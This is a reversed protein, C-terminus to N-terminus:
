VKSNMTSSSSISSNYYDYPKGVNIDDIKEDLKKRDRLYLAWLIVCDILLFAFSFWSMTSAKKGKTVKIIGMSAAPVFKYSAKIAIHTWIAGFGWVLVLVPSLLLLFINVYERFPLNPITVYLILIFMIITLIITAMLIYPHLVKVSFLQAIELINLKVPTQNMTTKNTSSSASPINFLEISLDTFLSLNSLNKRPYCISTLTQNQLNYVRPVSEICVGMFGARIVVDELGTTKNGSTFSSKIVSYFPSDSDFDYRTLFTKHNALNYCGILLFITLFITIVNFILVFIRPMRKACFWMASFYM